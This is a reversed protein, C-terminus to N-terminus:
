WLSTRCDGASESKRCWRSGSLINTWDQAGITRSSWDCLQQNIQKWNLKSFPLPGFRQSDWNNKGFASIEGIKNNSIASLCWIRFLRWRKVDVTWNQALWDVQMVSVVSLVLEIMLNQAGQAHPITHIIHFKNWLGWAAPRNELRLRATMKQRNRIECLFHSDTICFESWLPMKCIFSCIWQLRNLFLLAPCITQMVPSGNRRLLCSLLINKRVLFFISTANPQM